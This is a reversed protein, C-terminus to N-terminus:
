PSSPLVEGLGDCRHCNYGRRGNRTGLKGSGDCEACKTLRVHNKKALRHLRRLADATRETDECCGCGSAYYLDSAAVIAARLDRNSM